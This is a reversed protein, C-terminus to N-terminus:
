INVMIISENENVKHFACLKGLADVDEQLAYSALQVWPGAQSSRFVASCYRRFIHSRLFHVLESELM